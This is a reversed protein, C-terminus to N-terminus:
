INSKRYYKQLILRKYNLKEHLIYIKIFKQPKYHKKDTKHHIIIKHINQLNTKYFASIFKGDHIIFHISISITHLSFAPDEHAVSFM